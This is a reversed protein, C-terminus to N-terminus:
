AARGWFSADVCIDVKASKSDINVKLLAAMLHARQQWWSLEAHAATKASQCGRCSIRTAAACQWYAGSLV